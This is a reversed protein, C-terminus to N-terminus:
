VESDEAQLLLQKIKGGYLTESAVSGTDSINDSDSAANGQEEFSQSRTLKQQNSNKGSSSRFISSFSFSSKTSTKPM